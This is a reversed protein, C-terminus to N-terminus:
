PVSRPGPDPAEFSPPTPTPAPAAPAVPPQPGSGLTTVALAGVLALVGFLGILAAAAGASPDDGLLALALQIIAGVGVVAGLWTTAKRGGLVGVAVVLAVLLLPVLARLVAQDPFVGSAGSAGAVVGAVILPTGLGPLGFRDVIAAILLFAVGAGFAAISAARIADGLLAFPQAFGFFPAISVPGQPDVFQTSRHDSTGVQVAVLGALSWTGLLLGTALVVPRGQLGPVLWLAVLILAVVATPWWVLSTSPADSADVTQTAVIGLVLALSGIVAMVSGFPVLETFRDSRRGWDTLATVLIGVAWGGGTVVLALVVLLWPSPDDSVGLLTIIAIAVLAGAVAALVGALSLPPRQSLV